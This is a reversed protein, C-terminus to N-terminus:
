CRTELERARTRQIFRAGFMGERWDRWILEKLTHVSINYPDM